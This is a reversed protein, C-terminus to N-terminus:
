KLWRKVLARVILSIDSRFLIALVVVLFVTTSV